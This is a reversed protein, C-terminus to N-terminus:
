FKVSCAAIMIDIFISLFGNIYEPVETNSVMEEQGVNDGEKRSENEGLREQVCM